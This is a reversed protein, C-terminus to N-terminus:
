WGADTGRRTAHPKGRAQLNEIAVSLSKGDTRSWDLIPIGAARLDAIRMAREIRALQRGPSTTVTPNPSIVTAAHGSVDLRRIWDVIEDDCLPTLVVVQADAPLRRRLWAGLAREENEPGTENLTTSATHRATHPIGNTDDSPAALAPHTTLLRQARERHTSGTEPALWCRESCSSLVGIGVPTTEDLLTTVIRDAATVSRDVASREDPEPALFADNRADIVVVVTPTREVRFQLTSLTGTKALRNWDVRALPDGHQYERTAHFEVGSGATDTATRGGFREAHARLPVDALPPLQPMCTVTTANSPAIHSLREGSGSGDRVIVSAPTFRHEGRVAALTYSFTTAKGSRLAVGHRPSGDTVVLGPPVGDIVTCDPCFSDDRNRVTVTVEVDDGVAPHTDSVTREIDLAVAPPTGARSYAALGVAVVSALLLAPQRLIIGTAGVTLAVVTAGQWRATRREVTEGVNPFRLKSGSANTRSQSGFGSEHAESSLPQVPVSQESETSRRGTDDSATASSRQDFRRTLVGITYRARRAVLPEATRLAHLHERISPNEPTDTFFAAAHSNDTWTGETLQEYAQEANLGDRALVWEAVRELRTRFAEHTENSSEDTYPNSSSLSAIQRDTEDGPIPNTRGEPMPLTLTRRTDRYRVMVLAGAVALALLAIAAVEVSSVRIGSALSPVFAVALGALGLVVGVVLLLRNRVSM